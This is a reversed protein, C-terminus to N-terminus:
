LCPSHCDCKVVSPFNYNGGPLVNPLPGYARIALTFPGPPARVCVSSTCTNSIPFSGSPITTGRVAYQKQDTGAPPKYLFGTTDYLTVSWFGRNADVFADTSNWVLKYTAGWAGNLANGDNDQYTVWYPAKANSNMLALRTSAVARLLATSSDHVGWQGNFPLFNWIGSTISVTPNLWNSYIYAWADLVGANLTSYDLATCGTPHIGLSGFTNEVYTAEAGTVPNDALAVCLGDWFASKSGSGCPVQAYSYPCTSGPVAPNPSMYPGYTVNYYKVGIPPVIVGFQQRVGL